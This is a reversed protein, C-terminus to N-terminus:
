LDDNGLGNQQSISHQERLGLFGSGPNEIVAVVLSSSETKGLAPRRLKSSWDM